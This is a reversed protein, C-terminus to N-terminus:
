GVGVGEVGGEPVLALADQALGPVPGVDALLAVRGALVVGKAVLPGEEVVEGHHVKFVLPQELRLQEVLDQVGGM